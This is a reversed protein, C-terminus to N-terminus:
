IEYALIFRRDMIFTGDPLPTVKIGKNVTAEIMAPLPFPKGDATTGWDYVTIKTTPNANDELGELVPATETEDVIPKMIVREYLARQQKM